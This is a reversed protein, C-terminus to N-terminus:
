CPYQNIFIVLSLNYILKWNKYLCRIRISQVILCFLVIDSLQLVNRCIGDFTWNNDRLAFLVCFFFSLSYRECYYILKSAQFRVFSDYGNLVIVLRTIFTLRCLANRKRPDCVTRSVKVVGRRLSKRYYGFKHHQSSVSANIPPSAKLELAGRSFHM